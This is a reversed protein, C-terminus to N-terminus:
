QDKKSAEKLAAEQVARRKQHEERGDETALAIFFVQTSYLESKRRKIKAFAAGGDCLNRAHDGIIYGLPKPLEATAILIKELKQIVAQLESTNILIKKAGSQQAQSLEAKLYSLDLCKTPNPM